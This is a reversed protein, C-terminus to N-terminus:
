GERVVVGNGRGTIDAVFFEQNEKARSKEGNMASPPVGEEKNDLSEQPDDVEIAGAWRLTGGKGEVDQRPKHPGVKERPLHADGVKEIAKQAVRGKDVVAAKRIGDEGHSSGM